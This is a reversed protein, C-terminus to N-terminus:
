RTGGASLETVVEEMRMGRSGKVLIAVPGDATEAGMIERVIRAAEPNGRALRVHDAPMGKRRAEDAIWRSREGRAILWDAVHAACQGVERHAEEEQPGLELMDGLVAIKTGPADRLLDLAARVSMPAANYSDDIILAREHRIIRQREDLTAGAVAEQLHSWAMGFHRGVAIAALLAHVTHAGPIATHFGTTRGEAEVTFSIGELGSRRVEAVRYDCDRAYGVLLVEAIGSSVAMARTWEDDGNLVALGNAELGAVLESKARAIREISGMRELHIPAVNTVIGVDPRAISTLLAIDGAAYMGMELVAAWHEPNLEMLMLPLGIETNLNAASKLVPGRTSLVQAVIEKTTTKGISGTIGVVQADHRIRYSRAMEQLAQLPSDVLFLYRRAGNVAPLDDPVQSVLAGFAGRRLAQGLYAHGDAREGPLAVFLDGDKVARSDISVGMFRAELDALDLGDSERGVSRTTGDPAVRIVTAGTSTLITALAFTM